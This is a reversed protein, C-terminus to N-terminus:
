LVGGSARMLQLHLAARQDARAFREEDTRPTAADLEALRAKPRALASEILEVEAAREAEGLVVLREALRAIRTSRNFKTEDSDRPNGTEKLAELEKEIQARETRIPHGDIHPDPPFLRAALLPADERMNSPAWVPVDGDITLAEIRLLKDRLERAESMTAADGSELLTRAAKGMPDPRYPNDM